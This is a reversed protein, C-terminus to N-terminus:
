RAEAGEQGNDQMRLSTPDHSRSGTEEPVRGVCAPLLESSPFPSETAARGTVETVGAICFTIKIRLISFIM